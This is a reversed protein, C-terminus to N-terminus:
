GSQATSGGLVEAHGWKHRPWCCGGPSEQPGSHASKAPVPHKEGPMRERSCVWPNVAMASTIKQLLSKRSNISLLSSWKGTESSCKGKSNSFGWYGTYPESRAGFCCIEKSAGESGKGGFSPTGGASVEAAHCTGARLLSLGTM